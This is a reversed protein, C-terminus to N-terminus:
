FLGLQIAGSKNDALVQKLVAIPQISFLESHTYRSAIVIQIGNSHSDFLQQVLQVDNNNKSLHSLLLHTM